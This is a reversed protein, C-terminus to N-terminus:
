KALRDLLNKDESIIKHLHDALGPHGSAQNQASKLLALVDKLVFEPVNDLAKQIESKLENVSM